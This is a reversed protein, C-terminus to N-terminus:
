TSAQVAAIVSSRLGSHLSSWLVVLFTVNTTAAKAVAIEGHYHQRLAALIM